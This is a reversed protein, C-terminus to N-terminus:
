KFHKDYIERAEKQDRRNEPEYYKLVAPDANIVKELAKKAKDMKGFSIYMKALALHNDICAPELKTSYITVRSVQDEPFGLFACVKLAVEGVKALAEAIYRSFGGYLHTPDEEIVVQLSKAIEISHRVITVMGTNDGYHGLVLAVAFNAAPNRPEIQVAQRAYDVGNLVVKATAEKTTEFHSVYYYAMAIYMKPEIQGPRKANIKKFDEIAARAQKPDTRADWKKIAEAWLEPDSKPVPLPRVNRYPLVIKHLQQYEQETMGRLLLASNFRWYSAQMDGPKIKLAQDGAAISKKCYNARDKIDRMAMLFNMRCLWLQPEYAGPNDRAIEEVIAIASQAEETEGRKDWHEFAKAWRPDNTPRPMNVWPYPPSTLTQPYGAWSTSAMGTITILLICSALKRTTTM